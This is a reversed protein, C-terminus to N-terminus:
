QFAIFTVFAPIFLARGTNHLVDSYADAVSIWRATVAAARIAQRHPQYFLPDRAAAWSPVRRLQRQNSQEYLAVFDIGPPVQTRGPPHPKRARLDRPCGIAPGRARRVKHRDWSAALLNDGHQLLQQGLTQIAGIHHPNTMDLIRLTHQMYIFVVKLPYNVKVNIEGNFREVFSQRTSPLFRHARAISANVQQAIYRAAFATVVTETGKDTTWIIPMGFISAARGNVHTWVTAALKDTLAILSIVTRTSVDFVIGHGLGWQELVLNLDSQWLYGNHPAYFQGNRVMRRVVQAQRVQAAAPNLRQMATRVRGYSIVWNPHDYKLDNTVIRYGFNFGRDMAHQRVLADLQANSPANNSRLTGRRRFPAGARAAIRTIQSISLNINFQRQLARAVRKTSM